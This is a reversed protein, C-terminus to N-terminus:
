HSSPAPAAGRNQEGSRLLAYRYLVPAVMENVAVVGFVLAAAEPGLSPFTRVFLMALALALGAQPLLGFGAYRRVAAPAGALRGAIHTGGVLAAGRVALLLSIPLALPLLVDLHVAAGALAFFIVYIPMSAAQIEGLLREGYSTVNRVFVGAGLAVLLPDLLVRDGVEAVLFGVLVVTLSTGADVLRLYVSILAGAVVGILLSGFIEWLLQRILGSAEPEHLGMASKTVSSALTFLLIVALDSIVVVGLVTRTVPGEALLEDRLAVVVAPSQAAMAVGLTLAVLAAQEPPLGTLFGLRERLLFAAGGLAAMAGVVAVLTIWGITRFLPRMARLDIEAGATLAILSIAIGNFLRLRLTMEASVLELAYPGVLIGTALYGTLRPLGLDRFISGGLFATLLLFGGALTVGSTQGGLGREPAFSRAADM